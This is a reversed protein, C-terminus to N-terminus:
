NEGQEQLDRSCREFHPWAAEPRRLRVLMEGLHVRAMVHEPQKEVYRVLFGVAKNDDGKASYAAALSLLNRHLNSDLQLSEQYLAIAADADGNRLAEQGMQWRQVAPATPGTPEALAFCCPMMFMLLGIAQSRGTM